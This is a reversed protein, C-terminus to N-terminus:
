HKEVSMKMDGDGVKQVGVGIKKRQHGGVAVLEHPLRKM